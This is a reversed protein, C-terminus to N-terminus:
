GITDGLWHYYSQMDPQTIIKCNNYYKTDFTFPQTFFDEYKCELTCFLKNANNVHTVFFKKHTQSPPLKDEEFTHTISFTKLKKNQIIYISNKQISETRQVSFINASITEKSDKKELVYDQKKVVIYDDLNEVADAFKEFMEASIELYQLINDPENTIKLVKGTTDFGVYLM